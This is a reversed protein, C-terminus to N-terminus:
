ASRTPHQWPTKYSVGFWDQVGPSLLYWGVFGAIALSLITGFFQGTGISVIAQGIQLVALILSAYWAWRQRKFLGYAVAFAFAAYLLLFVGLMAGLAGLASVGASEGRLGIAGMFAGAAMFGFGAFAAFAGAVIALVALVTVGAPRTAPRPRLDFPASPSSAPPTAPPTAM